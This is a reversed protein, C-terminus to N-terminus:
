RCVLTSLDAHEHMLDLLDQLTEARVGHLLQRVRSLDNANWPHDLHQNLIGLIRVVEDCEWASECVDLHERPVMSMIMANLREVEA